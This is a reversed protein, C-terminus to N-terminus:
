SVKRHLLALVVRSLVPDDSLIREEEGRAETHGVSVHFTATFAQIWGGILSSM